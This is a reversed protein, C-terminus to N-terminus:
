FIEVSWKVSNEANGELSQIGEKEELRGSAYQSDAIGLWPEICLYPANKLTWIGLYPFDSFSMRIEPSCDKLLTLSETVDDKLVIADKEFLQYNLNLRKECLPISETKGSFLGDQLKYTKLTNNKDFELAYDEFNGEISFAPHSGISYYMKESSHNITKYSVILQNGTLVYKIQLEFKFPYIKLSEESYKLSFTASNELKEVLDFEFNRAFGHRSLQYKKGKYEYFSDKLGGVIPFLVPSTKNWFREDVTWIYNRSNKVLSFLEAGKHHISATIFQNKITTKM